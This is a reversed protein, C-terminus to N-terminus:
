KVPVEPTILKLENIDTQESQHLFPTFFGGASISEVLPNYKIIASLRVFSNKM